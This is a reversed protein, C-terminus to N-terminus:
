GAKGKSRGQVRQPSRRNCAIHNRTSGPPKLIRLRSMPHSQLRLNTGKFDHSPHSLIDKLPKALSLDPLPSRVRRFSAGKQVDRRGVQGLSPQNRRVNHICLTHDQRSCGRPHASVKRLKTSETLCSESKAEKNLPEASVKFSRDCESLTQKVLSMSVQRRTLYNFVRPCYSLAVALGQLSCCQM